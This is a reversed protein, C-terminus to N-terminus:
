IINYTEFVTLLAWVWLSNNLEQCFHLFAPFLPMMKWFTNESLDNESLNKLFDTM